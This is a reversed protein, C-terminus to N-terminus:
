QCPPWYVLLYCSHEQIGPVTYIKNILFNEIEYFEQLKASAHWQRPFKVNGGGSISIVGM